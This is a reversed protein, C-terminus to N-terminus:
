PIRRGHALRKRQLAPFELGFGGCLAQVIRFDLGQFLFEREFRQILQGGFAAVGQRAVPQRARVRRREQMRDDGGNGGNRKGDRQVRQPAFRVRAREGVRRLQHVSRAGTVFGGRIPQAGSQFRARIALRAVAVTPEQEAMHAHVGAVEGAGGAGEGRQVADGADIGLHVQRPGLRVVKCVAAANGGGGARDDVAQEGVVRIAGFKEFHEGHISQALAVEKDSRAM